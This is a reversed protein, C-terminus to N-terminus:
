ISLSQLAILARQADRQPIFIHDHYYGAVVNASISHEGLKTAFAATLGVAELSSHINLTICRMIQKNSIGAQQATQYELILTIGEKEKFVGIPDLKGIENWGIDNSSYFIYEQPMLEPSMQKLLIDLNTEGSM